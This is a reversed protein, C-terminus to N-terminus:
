PTQTNLPKVLLLTLYEPDVEGIAADYQKYKHYVGKGDPMYGRRFYLRHAQGAHETVAVDLHLTSGHMAAIEEAKELLANGVGCRRNWPFVNLDALGPQGAESMSGWRDKYLVFVYGAIKGDLLAILFSCEGEQQWNLYREYYKINDDSKDGEAECLAPIENDQIPRVTIKKM